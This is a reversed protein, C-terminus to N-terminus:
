KKGSSAAARTADAQKQSAEVAKQQRYKEMNFTNVGEVGKLLNALNQKGIDQRMTEGQVGLDLRAQAAKQSAGQQALLIDRFSQRQLGQTSGQRIGGRAMSARLNALGQAAQMNAAERGQTEEDGIKAKQAELFRDPGELKFEERLDFQEREGPRLKDGDAVPRRNGNRDVAFRQVPQAWLEPGTALQKKLDAAEQEAKRQDQRIQILAADNGSGGGSQIRAMVFEPDVQQQTKTDVYYQGFPGTQIRFGAKTAAEENIGQMMQQNKRFAELSM